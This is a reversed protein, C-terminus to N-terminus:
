FKTSGNCIWATVITDTPLKEEGTSTTSSVWCEVDLLDEFTAIGTTTVTTIKMMSSATTVNM